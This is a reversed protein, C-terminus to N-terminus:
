LFLFPVSWVAPGLYPLDAPWNALKTNDVCSAQIKDVRRSCRDFMGFTQQVILVGAFPEPSNATKLFGSFLASSTKAPATKLYL